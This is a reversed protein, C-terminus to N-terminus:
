LDTAGVDLQSAPVGGGGDEVELVRRREALLGPPRAGEVVVVETERPTSGASIGRRHLGEIPREHELGVEGLGRLRTLLASQCEGALRNRRARRSAFGASALCGSGRNRSRSLPLRGQPTRDQGGDHHAWVRAPV